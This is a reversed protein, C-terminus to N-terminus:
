YRVPFGKRHICMRIRRPMSKILNDIIWTDTSIERWGENLIKKLDQRDHCQREALRRDLIHWVNEIPNLDPSYPPWIMLKGVKNRVYSNNNKHISSNDHMYEFDGDPFVRSTHKWVYHSLM